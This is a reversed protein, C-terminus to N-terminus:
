GAKRRVGTRRVQKSRRENSRREGSTAVGGKKKRLEYDIRDINTKSQQNGPLNEASPSREQRETQDARREGANRVGANMTKMTKRAAIRQRETM